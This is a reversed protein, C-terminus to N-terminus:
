VFPQRLHVRDQDEKYLAYALIGTDDEFISARYDTILWSRMRDILEPTTMPNRYREDKILQHYLEGVIESEEVGAVRHRM